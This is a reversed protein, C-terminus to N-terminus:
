SATKKTAHEDIWARCLQFGHEEAQEKTVFTFDRPGELRKLEITAGEKDPAFVIGRSYWRNKLAPVAAAYIPYNNYHHM